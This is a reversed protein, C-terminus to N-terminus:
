CRDSQSNDPGPAQALQASPSKMPQDVMGIVAVKIWGFELLLRIAQRRQGPLSPMLLCNLEASFEYPGASGTWHSQFCHAEPKIRVHERLFLEEGQRRQCLGVLKAVLQLIRFGFGPQFQHQVAVGLAQRRANEQHLKIRLLELSWIFSM